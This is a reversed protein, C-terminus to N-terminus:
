CAWCEKLCETVSEHKFLERCLDLMTYEKRDIKVTIMSLADPNCGRWWLSFCARNWAGQFKMTETGIWGGLFLASVALLVIVAIIIIILTSTPLEIGKRGIM